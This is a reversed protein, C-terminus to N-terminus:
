NRDQKLNSKFVYSLTYKSETKYRNIININIYLFSSDHKKEQWLGQEYSAQDLDLSADLLRELLLEDM